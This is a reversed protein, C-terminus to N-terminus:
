RGCAHGEVCHCYGRFLVGECLDVLVEGGLLLCSCHVVVNEAEGVVGVDVVDDFEEALALDDM